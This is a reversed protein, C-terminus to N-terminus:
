GGKSPSLDQPKAPAYKNLGDLIRRTWENTVGTKKAEEYAARYAAEAKRELVAARTDLQTRYETALAEDRRFESPIPAAHMSEAFREYSHAIRYLAAFTEEARKYRFVAAYLEEVVRQARAKITLAQVQEKGTGVIRIADYRRFEDEAVEFQCRAAYGGARDPVALGRGSFESVCKKFAALSQKERGRESEAIGIELYAEVIRANESSVRDYRAIFDQLTSIMERWANMKKYVLASRFLVEGSDQRSKFEYAYRKFAVAAQSYKLQNELVVAVNYMADAVHESRPFREVLQTYAVLAEDFDFRKESTIGVRFLAQPALVSGPFNEYVRRYVRSAAALRGAREYAIAAKNLLKAASERTPDDDVLRLYIDAALEFKGEALYQDAGVETGPKSTVSSSWPYQTGELRLRMTLSFVAEAISASPKGPNWPASAAGVMCGSEASFLELRVVHNQAGTIRANLQSNAPVEQGPECALKGNTAASSLATRMMERLKRKEEESAVVSIKDVQLLQSRVASTLESRSVGAGPAVDNVAVLVRPAHRTWDEIRAEVEEVRAQKALLRGQWSWLYAAPLGRAGFRKALTGDEDCVVADPSWGPNACAGDSDQTAVVVLRLGHKRYAEHLAKWKPVAAMCPQCWTAYFEVAVLRVGPKELWGDIDLEAAESGVSSGAVIALGILAGVARM